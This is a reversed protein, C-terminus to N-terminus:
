ELCNDRFEQRRERMGNLGTEVYGEMWQIDDNVDQQEQIADYVDEFRDQQQEAFETVTDYDEEAEEMAMKFTLFAAEKVREPDDLENATYSAMQESQVDLENLANYQDDLSEGTSELVGGIEDEFSVTLEGGQRNTLQNQLHNTANNENYELIVAEDAIETNVGEVNKATDAVFEIQERTIESNYIELGSGDLRKEDTSIEERGIVTYEMNTNEYLLEVIRDM